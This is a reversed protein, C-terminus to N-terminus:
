GVDEQNIRKVIGTTGDMEVIDGTKLSALLGTIGVICPKGMERSVIASHSLLSGREVLIASATPFLPVWGPDTSSTVLIRGNLQEIETPDAVVQVEGRIIGACCGIGQLDGDTIAEQINQAFDNGVHVNGYTTIRENTPLDVQALQEEKRLQILAQIDTTVSTGKIIDFIESKTLYFIDRQNAILQEAAFQSGIALFLKRVMGFGRTREFRLNERGSVLTRAKKLVYNFTWKKRFKGKLKQAVHKEANARLKESHNTKVESIDQKVYSQIIKLFAAPNDTYTITELKLEGVCRNGFKALYSEIETQIEQTLELKRRNIETPSQSLFLERSNTDAKILQAIKLCRHMPEVSIIDESGCLLDNHLNGNEDLKYKLTLKQLVGFYVMAYFDNVLPAKWKKLLTQEFNVYLEILEFASKQNLDIAEYEVMKLNFDAQFNRSMKPLQRLNKLMIRVMNLVRLRESFKSRKPLGKLEFREKVGMMKEMFEANLAYGPLMALARYWSLLNYYVRGNLLGLMNEFVPSNEQITQDNVGMIGAFQRYVAAYVDRIFSFTLPSTIGPYSEIINSSDWIIREGSSDAISVTTIPRTQLLYLENNKVAFEIDQYANFHSYLRTLINKIENLHDDSLSNEKRLDEEVEVYITGSKAETNRIMKRNKDALQRDIEGSRTVLYTDADLEGSVLGEGLGYTASIMIESRNGTVPNFGFGVGAVDADIMEQIVIAIGGTLELGNTKKYAIIRESYGSKWVTKLAEVLNNENVHLESEFQGAFSHMKGDEVLASSRVAVNVGKFQDLIENLFSKEFTFKDIFVGIETLDLTDPFQGELEDSPIVVFNPVRCGLLQLEFLNKAKGGVFETHASVLKM